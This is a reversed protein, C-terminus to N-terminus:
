RTVQAPAPTAANATANAPPRTAPSARAQSRAPRQAAPAAKITAAAYSSVGSLSTQRPLHRLGSPASRPDHRAPGDPATTIPRRLPAQHTPQQQAKIADNNASPIMLTM